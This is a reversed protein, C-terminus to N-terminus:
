FSEYNQLVYDIAGTLNKFRNYNETASDLGKGTEVLISKAGINEAAYVDTM